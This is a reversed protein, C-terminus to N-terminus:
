AVVGGERKIPGIGHGAKRHPAPRGRSGPVRGCAACRLPRGPNPARSPVTRPDPAAPFRYPDRCHCVRARRGTGDPPLAPPSPATPRGPSPCPAEAMGGEALSRDLLGDATESAMGPGGAHRRIETGSLGFRKDLPGGRRTPPRFAPHCALRGAHMPALAATGALGAGRRMPASGEHCDHGAHVWSAM